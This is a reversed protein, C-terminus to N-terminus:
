CNYESQPEGIYLNYDLEGKIKREELICGHLKKMPEKINEQIYNMITKGTENFIVCSMDECIELKNM